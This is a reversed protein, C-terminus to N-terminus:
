EEEHWLTRGLGNPDPSEGHNPDNQVIPTAAGPINEQVSGKKQELAKRQVEGNSTVTLEMGAPVREWGKESGLPKAWVSGDIVQLRSGQLPRHSILFRTGKVQIAMLPTQILIRKPLAPDMQFFLEGEKLRLDGERKGSVLRRFLERFELVAPGQLVLIGEQPLRVVQSGETLLQVVSGSRIPVAGVWTEQVKLFPLSFLCFCFLSLLAAGILFPLALSTLRYELPPRTLLSLAVIPAPPVPLAKLRALAAEQRPTLERETMAM